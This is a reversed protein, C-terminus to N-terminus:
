DRRGVVIFVGVAIDAVGNAPNRYSLDNCFVVSVVDEPIGLKAAIEVIAEAAEEQTECVRMTVTTM